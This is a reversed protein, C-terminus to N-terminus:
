YFVDVGKELGGNNLTRKAKDKGKGYNLRYTAGLLVMNANDRISQIHHEPHVDSVTIREYKAGRHTFLNAATISFYWNKCHYQVKVNNWRESSHYTNGALEFKPEVEYNASIVWNGFYM